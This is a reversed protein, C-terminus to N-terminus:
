LGEARAALVTTGLDIGPISRCSGRAMNGSLSFVCAPRHYREKLHNAVLGIVGPHWHWGAVFVLPEHKKSRANWQQLAEFLVDKEIKQRDHNYKDLM